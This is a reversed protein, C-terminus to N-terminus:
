NELSSSSKSSGTARGGPGRQHRARAPDISRVMRELACASRHGPLARLPGQGAQDPEIFKLSKAQGAYYIPTAQNSGPSPIPTTPLALGKPLAGAPTTYQIQPTKHSALHLLPSNSPARPGEADLVRLSPHAHWAWAHWAQAYHGPEPM